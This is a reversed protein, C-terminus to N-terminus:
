QSRLLPVLPLRCFHLPPPADGPMRDQTDGANCASLLPTSLSPHPDHAWTTPGQPATLQTLPLPNAADAFPLKGSPKCPGQKEPASPPGATVDSVPPVGLM